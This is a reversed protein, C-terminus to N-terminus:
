KLGAEKKMKEFLLNPIESHREIVTWRGDPHEYRDHKTGGKNVFGHAKFFKVVERRNTMKM